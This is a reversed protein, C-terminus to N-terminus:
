AVIMVPGNITEVAQQQEPNLKSYEEQFNQQMNKTTIIITKITSIKQFIDFTSYFFPLTNLV